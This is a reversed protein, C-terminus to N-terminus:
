WCHVLKCFHYTSRIEHSDQPNYVDVKISAYLQQLQV